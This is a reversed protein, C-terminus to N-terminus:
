RIYDDLLRSEEFREAPIAAWRSGEAFVTETQGTRKHVFTVQRNYPVQKIVRGHKYQTEYAEWPHGIEELMERIELTNKGQLQKHSFRSQGVSLISNKTCDRQRWIFHEVATQADPVNFFRADFMAMEKEPYAASMIVSARAASLSVVKQLRNNFFAGENKETDPRMFISIEDSQVFAFRSTPINQVLEVAVNNMAAIFRDDFPREFGKTFTHFANGDLQLINYGDLPLSIDTLGQYHKSQAALRTKDM